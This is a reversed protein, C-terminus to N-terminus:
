SSRRAAILMSHDLPLRRAVDVLHGLSPRSRRRPAPSRVLTPTPTPEDPEDSSRGLATLRRRVTPWVDLVTHAHRHERWLGIPEFGADTVFRRLQDPRWRSVHHPPFDLPDLPNLRVRDANPVALVVIGGPAVCSRLAKAMEATSPLHELVQFATVFTFADPHAAAFVAFDDSSADIGSARLAAVAESNSDVGSVTAVRSRITRLFAGDGCGIDLVRDAPSALRAAKDYDWRRKPYYDYSTSLAEYFAAPGANLPTFYDLGCRVCRVQNADDTPTLEARLTAPLPQGILTEYAAWIADYPTRDLLQADTAECLPCPDVAGDVIDNGWTEM